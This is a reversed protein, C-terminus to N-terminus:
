KQMRLYQIVLGMCHNRIIQIALLRQTFAGPMVPLFSRTRLIGYTSPTPQVTVKILVREKPVGAEAYMQIIRRARKLSEEYDWSLRPDVQPYLQM